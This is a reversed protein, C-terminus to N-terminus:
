LNVPETGIWFINKRLGFNRGMGPHPSMDALIRSLLPLWKRGNIQMIQIQLRGDAGYCVPVIFQGGEKMRRRISTLAVALLEQSPEKQLMGIYNEIKENGKLGEDMKPEMM